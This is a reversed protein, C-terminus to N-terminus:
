GDATGALRLYGRLLVSLHVLLLKNWAVSARLADAAPMSAEFLGALASQTLSMAGIMLDAPVAGGRGWTRHSHSLGMALLYYATETGLAADATERLWRTLSHKRREIREVDPTGDEHVFFRAAQPHQLFHDYLAATLKAEHALVLPATRRIADADADAFGVFDALERLARPLDAATTV